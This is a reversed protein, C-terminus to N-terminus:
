ALDEEVLPALSWPRGSGFQTAVTVGAGTLWMVALVPWGLFPIRTLALVILTGIALAALPRQEYWGANKLLTRGLEFSIAVVGALAVLFLLGLLIFLLPFTHISLAALLGVAAMAIVLSAGAALYRLLQVGGKGLAGAMLRMRSPVAFLVIAGVLFNTLLSGALAALSTAMSPAEFRPSWWAEFGPRGGMQWMWPEWTWPREFPFASAVILVISAIIAAVVIVRWKNM